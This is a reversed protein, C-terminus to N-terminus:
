MQTWAWAGNRSEKGVRREESRLFSLEDKQPTLLYQLGLVPFAFLSLPWQTHKLQTDGPKGPTKILPSNMPTAEAKAANFLTIRPLCSVTFFATAQKNAPPWKSM